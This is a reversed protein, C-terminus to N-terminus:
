KYIFSDFEASVSVVHKNVIEFISGIVTDLRKNAVLFADMVAEAHYKGSGVAVINTEPQIVSFDPQVEYIKHDYLIIFSGGGVDQTNDKYGWEEKFLKRIEPVVKTILYEIFDQEGKREPLTLNYQLLQLMRFSTTGSITVIDHTSTTSTETSNTTTFKKQFVKPATTNLKTYGDSGLKDAAMFSSKGNTYAICCTM